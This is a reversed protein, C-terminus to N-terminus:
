DLLCIAAIFIIVFTPRDVHCALCKASFTHFVTGHGAGYSNLVLNASLTSRGPTWSDSGSADDSLHLVPTRDWSNFNGAYACYV